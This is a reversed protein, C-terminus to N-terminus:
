RCRTASALSSGPWRWERVCRSSPTPPTWSSNPPTMAPSATSTWWAPSTPPATTPSGTTIRSGPTRSRSRSWSAPGSTTWVTSRRAPGTSSSTSAPFSPSSRGPESWTPRTASVHALQHDAVAFARSAWPDLYEMGAQTYVELLGASRLARNINVPRAAPTIGYESVIVITADEALLPTLAADVQQAAAVAEPGAPGYRQLDYDLHPVYVMLLDPREAHLIHRAAGVIWRTSAIGATPGWYNFLPFTGLEAELADHLSPPRTYCDPSKRGDAHYIPRPTILIDSAAGMAYWWCVNATRAGPVASWLQDGQILANHQRWLFIEGLDRFYWGNGVIGHERPMTGTLLTAQMSCTVAPLVPRLSAANGVKAVNPMHALLAPTLGVVNIVVLPAM